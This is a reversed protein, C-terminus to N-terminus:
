TAELMSLLTVENHDSGSQPLEQTTLRKRQLHIRSPDEFVGFYYASSRCRRLGERTM